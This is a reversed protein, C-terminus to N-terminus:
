LNEVLWVITSLLRMIDPNGYDRSGDVEYLEMSSTSDTVPVLLGNFNGNCFFLYVPDVIGNPRDVAGDACPSEHGIPGLRTADTRLGLYDNFVTDGDGPRGAADAVGDFDADLFGDIGGDTFEGADADGNGNKDTWPEQESESFFTGEADFWPLLGAKPDKLDTIPHSFLRSLNLGPIRMGVPDLPGDYEGLFSKAQGLLNWIGDAPIYVSGDHEVSAKLDSFTEHLVGYGLLNAATSAIFDQTFKAVLTSVFSSKPFVDDGQDDHEADLYEMSLTLAGFGDVFRARIAVLEAPDALKGFEPRLWPLPKLGLAIAAESIWAPIEAPNSPMAPVPKGSLAADLVTALVGDYAYVLDVAGVAIQFVGYLGAIETIDWEGSLVVTPQTPETAPLVLNEFTFTFDPQAIVHAFHDVIGKELAQHVFVHITKALQEPPPLSAGGAEEGEAGGSSAVLSPIAQVLDLFQIMGLGFHARVQEDETGAEVVDKYLDFALARYAAEGGHESLYREAEALKEATPPEEVSCGATFVFALLLTSLIRTKM